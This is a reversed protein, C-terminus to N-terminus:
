TLNLAKRDIMKKHKNLVTKKTIFKNETLKHFGDVVNELYHQEIIVSCNDGVVDPLATADYVIVPTGCVMAEVTPLGFTEEVCTNFFVDVM